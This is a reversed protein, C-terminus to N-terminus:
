ICTPKWPVTITQTHHLTPLHRNCYSWNPPTLLPQLHPFNNPRQPTSRIDPEASLSVSRPSPCQTAPQAATPSAGNNTPQTAATTAPIGTHTPQVNLCNGLRSPLCTSCKKGAKVSACNGCKGTRNCKCCNVLRRDPQTTPMILLNLKLTKRM